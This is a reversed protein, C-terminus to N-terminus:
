SPHKSLCYHRAMRSNGHDFDLVLKFSLGIGIAAHHGPSGEVRWRAWVKGRLRRDSFGKSGSRSPARAVGSGRIQGLGAFSRIDSIANSHLM